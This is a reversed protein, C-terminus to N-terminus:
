IITLINMSIGYPNWQFIALISIVIKPKLKKLSRLLWGTHLELDYKCHPKFHSTEFCRVKTRNGLTRQDLNYWKKACRTTPSFSCCFPVTFMRVLSLLTRPSFDSSQTLSCKLSSDSFRMRLESSYPKWSSTLSTVSWTDFISTFYVNRKWKGDVPQEIM